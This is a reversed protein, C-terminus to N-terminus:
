APMGSRRMSRASGKRQELTPLGGETMDACLLRLFEPSSEIASGAVIAALRRQMTAAPMEGDLYIVPCPESASWGLLSGGSAVAYAIALALHTKGVGRASHLMALGQTPLWPDLLMGRPPLDLKLFERITLPRLRPPLEVMGLRILGDIGDPPM